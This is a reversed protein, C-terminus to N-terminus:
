CGLQLVWVSNMEGPARFTSVEAALERPSKNQRSGGLRTAQTMIWEQQRRREAADAAKRKGLSVPLDHSVGAGLKKGETFFGEGAYGSRKLAYYEDELKSLFSYFKSDHPGHVNHTLQSCGILWHADRQVTCSL